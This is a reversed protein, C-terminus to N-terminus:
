DWCLKVLTETRYLWYWRARQLAAPRRVGPNVHDPDNSTEQVGQANSLLAFVLLVLMRLLEDM